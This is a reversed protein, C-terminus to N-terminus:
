PALIAQRRQKRVSFELHTGSHITELARSIGTGIARALLPPVANGVQTYRPCERTRRDGGTTYKGCFAFWDPFSQLRASERVTLIRPDSYHLVDDPLTTITPAPKAASMPYVRHKLLGFRDRDRDSMRVGQRCSRIIERNRRTIEPSHRAMRMSDMAITCHANMLRQYTTRPGEYVLEKFGSPSAPDVCDQLRHGTTELDSIAESAAVSDTLRLARLQDVRSEEVFDFMAEVGGPLRSAFELSLGLIILRPRQQPVGFKSADVIRGTAVYGVDALASLAREYYSKPKPGPLTVGRREKAGHAVRMGPVNEMVLAAPRLTEVVEIYRTFLQNRPDAKDRRGAFSFGQCPPGGAVLDIQGRLSRLDARHAALLEDIACAQHELWSPWAFRVKSNQGLFNHAFTQFAMADKEIAFLGEWGGQVLGLSLGGCGAFLDVFTRGCRARKTMSQNGNPAGVRIPSAYGVQCFGAQPLALRSGTQVGARVRQSFRQEGWVKGTMCEERVRQPPVKEAKAHGDMVANGDSVVAPRSRSIM